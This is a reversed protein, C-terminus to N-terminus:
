SDGSKLRELAKAKVEETLNAGHSDITVVLPGFEKAEFVWMAESMGFEDLWFVNTVEKISAAALVAAGGTFAAYACGHIRCAKATRKGMGGKGIIFRLGTKEIMEAEFPEMRSSTTPGAAVVEYRERNKRVVPGCHYLAAMSLDVPLRGGEGLIKLAKEHVEDRATVLTGTVYVVDGAVLKKAEEASIPTKLHHEAM